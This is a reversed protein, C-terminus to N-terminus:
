TPVLILGEISCLFFVLETRDTLIQEEPVFRSWGMGKPRKACCNDTVTGQWFTEEVAVPLFYTAM